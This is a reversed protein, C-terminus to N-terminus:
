CLHYGFLGEYGEAGRSAVSLIKGFIRGVAGRLEYSIIVLFGCPCQCALVIVWVVFVITVSVLSEM